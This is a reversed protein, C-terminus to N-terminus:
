SPVLKNIDSTLSCLHLESGCVSNFYTGEFEGICQFGDDALSYGQSCSCLFSGETNTCNHECGGSDSLCEDIDASCVTYTSIFM